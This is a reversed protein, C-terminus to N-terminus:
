NEMLNTYCKELASICKTWMFKDRVVWQSHENTWNKITSIGNLISQISHPEIYIVSEGFYEKVSGVQTILIKAGGCAAELAAISPTELLSPMAFFDAGSIASRLMNSNYTLPEIIKLQNGAIRQCEETYNQDRIHGVVVFDYEPFNQLAELFILQNKRSEINAINLIYPKHINYKNRFTNADQEILFEKEVGNYVTVFKERSMSFVDSMHNGEMDSNVVIRDAIEFLNWIEQFPYNDKTEPTIWLNPSIVLKLGQEKIYNCFHISGPQVSFYHFIDYEKINPNWQDYLDVQIGMDTLHEKYALLQREGGGPCDFAWPYVGFLIKPNM